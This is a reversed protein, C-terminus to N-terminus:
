RLTTCRALFPALEQRYKMSNMKLGELHTAEPIEVASMRLNPIEAFFDDIAEIPVLRDAQGRFSLVPFNQPFRESAEQLARTFGIGGYLTLSAATFFGRVLSSQVDFQQTYLNWFCRPLQLFPGGDCVVAAIDQAQRAAVAMFASNAPLSFAFVIKRGPLANLIAELQDQWIRYAGFALDTSIPLEKLLLRHPKDKADHYVLNFIVADFGLDNVLQVHRWVSQKNGGFHHVFVIKEAFLRRAAPVLEGDFPLRQQPRQQPRQPLSGSLSLSNQDHPTTM